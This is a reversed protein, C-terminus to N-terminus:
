SVVRRRDLRVGRSERDQALRLEGDFRTVVHFRLQQGGAARKWIQVPSREVVVTVPNLDSEGASNIRDLVERDAGIKVLRKAVFALTSDDGRFIIKALGDGHRAEEQRSSPGRHIFGLTLPDPLLLVVKQSTELPTQVREERGDVDLLPRPAQRARPLDM